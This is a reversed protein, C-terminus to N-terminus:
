VGKYVQGRPAIIVIVVTESDKIYDFAIRYDGVRLRYRNKYNGTIKKVDGLPLKEISAKIRSKMSENLSDLEKKARKTYEIRM